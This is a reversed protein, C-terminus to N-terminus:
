VECRYSVWLYGMFNYLILLYLFALMDLHANIHDNAIDM